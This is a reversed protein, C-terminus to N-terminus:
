RTVIVGFMLRSSFCDTLFCPLSRDVKHEAEKDKKSEHVKEKEKEVEEEREAGEQELLVVDDVLSEAGQQQEDSEDEDEDEDELQEQEQEDDDDTAGTEM